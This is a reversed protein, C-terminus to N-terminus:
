LEKEDLCVRCGKGKKLNRMLKRQNNYGLKLVINGDEFNKPGLTVPRGNRLKSLQHPKLNVLNDNLEDM